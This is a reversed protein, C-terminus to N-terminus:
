WVQSGYMDTCMLTMVFMTDQHLNSLVLLSAKLKCKDLTARADNDEVGNMVNQSAESDTLSGFCALLSEDTYAWFKKPQPM